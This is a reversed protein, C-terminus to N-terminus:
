DFQIMEGLLPSFTFIVFTQFWWGSVFYTDFEAAPVFFVTRPLVGAGTQM